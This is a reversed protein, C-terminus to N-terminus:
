DLPGTLCGLPGQPGWAGLFLLWLSSKKRLTAYIPGSTPHTRNEDPSNGNTAEGNPMNGDMADGKPTNGNPGKNMKRTKMTAVIFIWLLAFLAAKAARKQM